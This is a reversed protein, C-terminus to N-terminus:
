CCANNAKNATVISARFAMMAWGEVSKNMPEANVEGGRLRSGAGVLVM